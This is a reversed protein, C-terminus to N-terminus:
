LKKGQCTANPPISWTGGSCVITTTKNDYLCTVTIESDASANRSSFIVNGLGLSSLPECRGVILCVLTLTITYVTMGSPRVIWLKSVGASCTLFKALTGRIVKVTFNKRQSLGSEWKLARATYKQRGMGSATKKRGTIPTTAGTHSMEAM